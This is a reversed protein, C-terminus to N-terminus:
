LACEKGLSIGFEGYVMSYFVGLDPLILEILSWGFKRKSQEPKPTYLSV